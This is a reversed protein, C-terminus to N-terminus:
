SRVLEPSQGPGLHPKRYFRSKQRRNRRRLFCRGGHTRAHGPGRIHPRALIGHRGAESESRRSREETDHELAFPLRLQHLAQHHTLLVQDVSTVGIGSLRNLIEGSGFGILLASNGERLVYVNCTDEFLFLSDSLKQLAGSARFDRDHKRAYEVPFPGLLRPALAEDPRAPAPISICVLAIRLLCWKTM